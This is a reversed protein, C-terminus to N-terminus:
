CQFLKWKSHFVLSYNLSTQSKGSTQQNGLVTLRLVKSLKHPLEYIGYKNSIIVSWKVQTIFFFNTGSKNIDYRHSRNQIKLRMKILILWMM